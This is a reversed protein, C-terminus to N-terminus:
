ARALVERHQQSVGVACGPGDRGQVAAFVRDVGEPTVQASAGRALAPATICLASVVSLRRVLTM